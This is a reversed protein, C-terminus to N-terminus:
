PKKITKSLEKETSSFDFRSCKYNIAKFKFVSRHNNCHNSIEQISLFLLNNPQNNNWTQPQKVKETIM